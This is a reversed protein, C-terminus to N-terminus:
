LRLAPFLLTLVFATRFSFVSWVRLDFAKQENLAKALASCVRIANGAVRIIAVM